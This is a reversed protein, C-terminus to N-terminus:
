RSPVPRKKALARRHARYDALGIWDYNKEDDNALYEGIWARSPMKERWTKTAQRIFSDSVLGKKVAPCRMDIVFVIREGERAISVPYTRCDVPRKAYVSCYPETFFPCLAKPRASCAAFSFGKSVPHKKLLPKIESLTFFSPTRNECCLGNHSICEKSLASLRKMLPLAISPKNINNKSPSPWMLTFLDSDEPQIRFTEPILHALSLFGHLDFVETFSRSGSELYMLGIVSLYRRRALDM